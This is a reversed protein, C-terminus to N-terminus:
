AAVHQQGSTTRTGEVRSAVRTLLREAAGVRLSTEAEILEGLAQALAAGGSRRWTDSATATPGGNAPNAQEAELSSLLVARYFHPEVERELRGKLREEDRGNNLVDKHSVVLLSSRRLRAPISAWIAAESAKWAQTASTCWVAIHARRCAQLCLDHVQSLGDAFGPTDIIEFAKLQQLPLGLHLLRAHGKTVDAVAEVSIPRRVHDSCEVDLRLEEAWHLRIPVRTNAHISTPLVGDGLLVNALTSKGSNFEGLLVVRPPRALRNGVRGVLRAINAALFTGGCGSQLRRQSAFMEDSLQATNM